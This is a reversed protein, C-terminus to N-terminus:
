RRWRQRWRPVFPLAAGLALVALVILWLLGLADNDSGVGFSRQVRCTLDYCDGQLRNAVAAVLLLVGGAAAGALARWAIGVPTLPAQQWRSGRGPRGGALVDLLDDMDEDFRASRLAFANLKHLPQLDPPLEAPQPMPTGDILLPVVRAPSALAQRLEYRVPDDAQLLRPQGDAAAGRWQGGILVFVHTAEALTRAIRQEFDEGLAIDDVDLFVKDVAPVGDLFQAMRGATAQSDARRYSLFVKM